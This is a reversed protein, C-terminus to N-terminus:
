QDGGEKTKKKKNIILVVVIILLLVLAAIGGILWWNTEPELTVDEENLRRADAAAITFPEEWHWEEGQSRATMTLVYDGPRFREGNLPIPFDMHSNPAMQMSTRQTEYLVTDSGSARVEADIEIHNVFTPTYNQIKASIVNRYNVQSAFVELLELGPDTSSRNNSVVVGLIFAFENRIGIGETESETATADRVEEVRIAGALIGDFEEEPMTLPLTLIREEQAELTIVGPAEILEAISAPLTPDPAEADRGYEVVGNVNTFATHASVEVDITEESTNQVRLQLEEQEGAGLNLDFYGSAGGEIQSDPFIPTVFFNLESEIDDNARVPTPWAILSCLVIMATLLRLWRQNTPQEIM